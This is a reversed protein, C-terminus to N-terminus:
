VAQKVEACLPPFLGAAVMAHAFPVGDPWDGPPPGPLPGYTGYESPGGVPTKIFTSSGEPAAIIQYLTLTEPDTYCTYHTQGDPGNTATALGVAVASLAIARLLVTGRIERM